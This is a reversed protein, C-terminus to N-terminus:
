VCVVNPNYSLNNALFAEVAAGCAGRVGGYLKLKEVGFPLVAAEAGDYLADGNVVVSPKHEGECVAALYRNHKSLSYLFDGFLM